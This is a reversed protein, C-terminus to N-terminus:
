TVPNVDTLYSAVLPLSMKVRRQGKLDRLM